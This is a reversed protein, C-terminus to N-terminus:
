YNGENLKHYEERRQEPYHGESFVEATAWGDYGIKKLEAMVAPYNVDGSLLDVFGSLTGVSARYDKFHLKKIRNGLIKIWQEAYGSYIVNGVDFYAGVYKSQAKDIFDRFELPSLLFKNWVNEIGIVVGTKEAYDKLENIADLARDYATDYEVMGGSPSTDAGVLGPVVLITDCGVWSAVDLQKKVISKAKNRVAEDNSTLSYSWYLGSAVSYLEIGCEDAMKKLSQMEEYTSNLNVEGEEALALEVGDFGAEKAFRFIRQLSWDNPFCWVSAGAKM